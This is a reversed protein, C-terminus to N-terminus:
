VLRFWNYLKRHKLYVPDMDHLYAEKEFSINRYADRKNKYQLLRVVWEIGYWIYFFLYLMERMQATHISEHNITRDSIPKYEKRAFIVGFLNLAVFGKTPLLKNYIIKM